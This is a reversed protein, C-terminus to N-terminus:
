PLLAITPISYIVSFYHCYVLQHRSVEWPICLKRLLAFLVVPHAIVVPVSGYVILVPPSQM